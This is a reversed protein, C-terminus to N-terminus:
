EEKNPNVVWPTKAGEDIKKWKTRSGCLRRRKSENGKSKHCLRAEDVIKKWETRNCCLRRWARVRM